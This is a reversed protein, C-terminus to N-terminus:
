LRLVFLWATSTESFLACPGVMRMMRMTMM